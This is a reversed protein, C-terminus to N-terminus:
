KIKREILFNYMVFYSYLIITRVPKCLVTYFKLLLFKSYKEKNEFKLYILSVALPPKCHIKSIFSVKHKIFELAASTISLVIFSPRLLKIVILKKSEDREYTGEIIM